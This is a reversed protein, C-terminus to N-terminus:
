HLATPDGLTNWPLAQVFADFVNGSGTGVVKVTWRDAEFFYLQTEANGGRFVPKTGSLNEHGEIAFPQESQLQASEGAKRAASAKAGALKADPAASDALYIEVVATFGSANEYRVGADNNGDITYPALVRSFGGVQRAFQWGSYEHRWAGENGFPHLPDASGITSTLGALVFAALVCTKQTGGKVDCDWSPRNMALMLRCHSLDM